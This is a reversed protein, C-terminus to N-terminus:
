CGPNVPATGVSALPQANALQRVKAKAKTTRKMPWYRVWDQQTWTEAMAAGPTGILSLRLHLRRGALLGDRPQKRVIKGDVFFSISKKTVEVAWVRWASTAISQDGVWNDVDSIPGRPSITDSLVRGPTTVGITAVGPQAPNYAALTISEPACRGAPTGDPVLELKVSFDTPDVDSKDRTALSRFRTEWRGKKFSQNWDNVVDGTLSHIEQTGHGVAGVVWRETQGALSFVGPVSDGDETRFEYRLRAPYWGYTSGAHILEFKTCGTARGCAAAAADHAPMFLAAVLGLVVLRPAARFRM